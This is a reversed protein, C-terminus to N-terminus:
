DTGDERVEEIALLRLSNFRCVTKFDCYGPCSDPDSRPAFWGSRIGELCRSVHALSTDVLARVDAVGSRSSVSFPKFQDKLSASWFVPQNRIKGRRLTYYCGAVGQM